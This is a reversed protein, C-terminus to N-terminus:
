LGFFVAVEEAHCLTRPESVSHWGPTEFPEPFRNAFGSSM